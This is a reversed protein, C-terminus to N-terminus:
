KKDGKGFDLDNLSLKPWVERVMQLTLNEGIFAVLLALLQAVLVVSGEAMEEPEVQAQLEELGELSGDAKVHVARLSPDEENAVALARSLLAHFGTNGMLTALQPRLKEFVHFAAPPLTGSSKNGRTEYAILRQSFDRM